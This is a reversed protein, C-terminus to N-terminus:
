GDGDLLKLWEFGGHFRISWGGAEHLLWQDQEQIGIVIDGEFLRGVVNDSRYPDGPESHVNLFGRQTQVLYRRPQEKKLEQCPSTVGKLLPRLPHHSSSKKPMFDYFIYLVYTYTNLLDIYSILYPLATKKLIM